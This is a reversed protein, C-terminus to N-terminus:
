TTHRRALFSERQRKFNTNYYRLTNALCNPNKFGHTQGPYLRMVARITNQRTLHTEGNSIMDEWAAELKTIITDKTTQCYQKTTNPRAYKYCKKAVCTCKFLM